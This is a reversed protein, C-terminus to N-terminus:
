WNLSKTFIPRGNVTIKNRVSTMKSGTM